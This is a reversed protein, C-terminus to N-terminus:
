AAYLERTNAFIYKKIRQNHIANPMVLDVPRELLQELKLKIGMFRMLAGHATHFEILFDVDSTDCFENTLASGFLVLRKVQYQECLVIM